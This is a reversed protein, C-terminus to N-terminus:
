NEQWGTAVGLIARAEYVRLGAIQLTLNNQYARDILQDLVPDNFNKWWERYAAPDTNIQESDAQLWEPPAEAQPKEFNPGVTTCASLFVASLSALFLGSWSAEHPKNVMEGM